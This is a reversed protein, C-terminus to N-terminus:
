NGGAEKDPFLTMASCGTRHSYRNIKDVAFKAETSTHFEIVSSHVSKDGDEHHKILILIKYVTTTGKCGTLRLLWQPDVNM